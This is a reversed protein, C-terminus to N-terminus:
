MRPRTAQKAAALAEEQSKGAKLALGKAKHYACSKRSKRASDHSPAAEKDQKAKAKPAPKAKAKSAAPKSAPKAAAKGRPAKPSYFQTDQSGPVDAPAKRKRTAAKSPTDTPEATAQRSAKTAAKAKAKAKAKATAKAPKAKAKATTNPQNRSGKPRGPKRKEQAEEQKSDKDAGQKPKSDTAQKNEKKKKNLKNQETPSIVGATSVLAPRDDCALEQEKPLEPCPKGDEDGAPEEDEACESAKGNQDGAPQPDDEACKDTMDHGDGAPEDDECKDTQEEVPAAAGAAPEHRDSDAFEGEEQKIGETKIPVPEQKIPVPIWPKELPKQKIEEPTPKPVPERKIVVPTPKPVPERKIVLPTPESVPERKIVVPTPESVPERKIVVPTPKPVPESSMIATPTTKEVPARQNGSASSRSKKPAPWDATATQLRRAAFKIPTAKELAGAEISATEKLAVEQCALAAATAVADDDMVQTEQTSVNGAVHFASTARQHKAAILQALKQQQDWLAQLLVRKNPDSVKETSAPSDVAPGAHKPTVLDESSAGLPASSPSPKGSREPCKEDSIGGDPLSTEGPECLVEEDDTECESEANEYGVEEDGLLEEDLSEKSGRPQRGPPIELGLHLYIKRINEENPRHPLKCIRNFMSILNRVRWGSVPKRGKMRCKEFFFAVEEELRDVSPRAGLAGMALAVVDWNFDLDPRTLRGPAIVLRGASGREALHDEKFWDLGLCAKESDSEKDDVKGSSM